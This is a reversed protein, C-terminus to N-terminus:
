FWIVQSSKAYSKAGALTKMNADAEHRREFITPTHGCYFDCGLRLM